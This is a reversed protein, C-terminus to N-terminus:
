LLSATLSSRTYILLLVHPACRSVSTRGARGTVRPHLVVAIVQNVRVTLTSTRTTTMWSLPIYFAALFKGPLRESYEQRTAALTLAPAHSCARTDKTM